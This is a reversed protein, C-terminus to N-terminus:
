AIKQQAKAITGMDDASCIVVVELLSLPYRASAIREITSQIVEEEHRAPLLVTFSKQPPLFRAPAQARRYAEPQDWTYLMLYLTYASQITLLISLALSGAIVAGVLAQGAFVALSGLAQSGIMLHEKWDSHINLRTPWAAEM